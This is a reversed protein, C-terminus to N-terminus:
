AALEALKKWVEDYTAADFYEEIRSIKGNRVHIFISVNLPPLPRGDAFAGNLVHQEVLGGEIPYRRVEDYSLRSTISFLAALMRAPPMKAIMKPYRSTVATTGIVVAADAPTLAGTGVASTISDITGPFVPLGAPIGLVEAVAPLVAGIAGRMPVLPALKAPDIGTAAVLDPDYETSGWHRNDCVLQGFVTSQTASVRGTLRGTLYDM